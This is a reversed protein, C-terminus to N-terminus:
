QHGFTNEGSYTIYLFGDEDKYKAYIHSMLEAAVVFHGLTLLLNKQRVGRRAHQTNAGRVHGRLDVLSPFFLSNRERVLLLYSM